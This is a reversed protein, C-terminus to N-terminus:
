WKGNPTKQGFNNLTLSGDSYQNTGSIPECTITYSPIATTGPTASCNYRGNVDVIDSGFGLEQLTGYARNSLFYQQERTAIDMMQAQAQARNSRVIHQQYSPVAIATLIAIVAVVIMLEILTFGSLNKM